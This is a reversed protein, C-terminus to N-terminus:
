RGGETTPEWDRGTLGHRKAATVAANRSAFPTADALQEVVSWAGGLTIPAEDKRRITIYPEDCFFLGTAKHRIATM